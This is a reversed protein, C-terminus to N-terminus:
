ARPIRDYGETVVEQVAQWERERGARLDEGRIFRGISIAAQKGAAIAEIVTKPGTVADGGAFIDPDHTQLTLPDISMTGWDTLRCACEETLCAWDSEQGIAPVVADVEILFESGKVPVPRRRGSADPEGLEMKVCEVAKVRGNEGVVRVPNTLPMIEIGEERCEHIEEENAPMEAESRRYIIFPKRSGSRLATRVTDMAVNGGGIVAVRDGLPVKKGLNIDRLYEVGPVVGEFDEGSIGLAKCEQAGIAMFFAKYGQDRLQAVTLDKGIEVGTKFEVGMDSIVQIEAEITDKPLRYSPIGVTLMGGLVPLKEFVTVRYGEAALYYACSLGAPGSGIIAVREARKDKIEPVYRTESKLDLDALFRKISDIAVPEDFQGRMCASECPHHCVRGCIAPLPNEEKILKLAERYKGQASLAVYGQVSIHAPCAAKCPSTGRKEIAYAGPVAQAYKRYAARRVDLGENYENKREVPCVKACEGCGTCRSPDVYRPEQLVEM